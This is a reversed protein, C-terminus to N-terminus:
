KVSGIIIGSGASGQDTTIPVLESNAVIEDIIGQCFAELIQQQNGSNSGSAGAQSALIRAAMSSASLAM